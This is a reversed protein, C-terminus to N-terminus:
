QYSARRIAELLSKRYISRVKPKGKLASQYMFPQAKQGDTRYFVKGNASMSRPFRYKTAVLDSIDDGNIWWPTSRYSVAVNPSIGDHNDRGEPGTGFEVFVATKLNTYVEANAGHLRKRTRVLISQRLEGNNAPAKKKTLGQVHQASALLAKEKLDRQVYKDMAQWTRKLDEFKRNSVM